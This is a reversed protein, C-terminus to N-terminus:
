GRERVYDAVKPTIHNKIMLRIFTHIIFIMIGLIISNINALDYIFYNFIFIISFIVIVVIIDVLGVIFLTVSSKVNGINNMIIKPFIVLVSISSTLFATAVLVPVKSYTESSVACIWFVAVLLHLALAIVVWMKDIPERSCFWDFNRKM